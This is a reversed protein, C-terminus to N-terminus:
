FDQPQKAKMTAELAQKDAEPNILLQQNNKM